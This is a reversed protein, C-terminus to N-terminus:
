PSGAEPALPTGPTVAISKWSGGERKMALYSKSGGQPKFLVFASDEKIRVSTIPAAAAAQAEKAAAPNLLQKLAGECGGGEGGGFSALQERNTKSIAACIGAYDQNAMATLFGHVAGEVASKDTGNAAGGYQQISQDGSAAEKPKAGEASEKAPGSAASTATSSAGTSSSGSGCGAVTLVAALGLVAALALARLRTRV